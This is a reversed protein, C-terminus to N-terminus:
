FLSLFVLSSYVHNPYMREYSKGIGIVIGIYIYLYIFGYLYLAYGAHLLAVVAYLGWRAPM